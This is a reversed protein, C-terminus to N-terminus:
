ASSARHAEEGKCTGVLAVPRWDVWPLGLPDLLPASNSTVRKFYDARDSKRKESKQDPNKKRM